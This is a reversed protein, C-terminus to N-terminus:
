EPDNQQPAKDSSAQLAVDKPQLGCLSQESMQHLMRLMAGSVAEAIMKRSFHTDTESSVLTETIPGDETECNLVEITVTYDGGSIVPYGLLFAAGPAPVFIGGLFRLVNLKRKWFKFRLLRLRFGVDANSSRWDWDGLEYYLSDGVSSRLRKSVVEPKSAGGKYPEGKKDFWVTNSSDMEVSFSLRPKQARGQGSQCGVVMACLLVLGALKGWRRARCSGSRM